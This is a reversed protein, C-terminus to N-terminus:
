RARSSGHWGHDLTDTHGQWGCRSAYCGGGHVSGVHHSWIACITYINHSIQYLKARLLQILLHSTVINIALFVQEFIDHSM